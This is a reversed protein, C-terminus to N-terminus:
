TDAPSRSAYVVIYKLNPLKSRLGVIKEAQKGGQCLCLKAECHNLVFYCADPANTTYIGAPVADALWSGQLMCFYEYSNFGIIGITDKSEFGLSILTKAVSPCPSFPLSCVLLCRQLVPHLSYFCKGQHRRRPLRRVGQLCKQIGLSHVPLTFCVRGITTPEPDFGTEPHRVIEITDKINVARHLDPLTISTMTSHIPSFCFLLIYYQRKLVGKQIRYFNMQFPQDSTM